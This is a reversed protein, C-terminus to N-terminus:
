KGLDQNTKKKIAEEIKEKDVLGAMLSEQLEVLQSQLIKRGEYSPIDSKELLIKFLKESHEHIKKLVLWTQYILFAECSKKNRLINM